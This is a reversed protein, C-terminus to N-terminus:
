RGRRPSTPRGEGGCSEAVAAVLTTAADGGRKMRRDARGLASLARRLDAESWRRSAELLADLKFQMNPPLLKTGIEDRSARAERMALAGRVQRLSRHLTTLIRLGEEGDGLLREVHELSAAVDRGSFSDSLLYLPQGLGRGLVAGLDDATIDKRGAAFAELKDVEGMLRRLDQGVEGLLENLADPAFRLGRSRLEAEVHARLARGKKPSVDLVTALPLLKKWPNRRRDPKAAMLVLTVDPAPDGAYVEVPDEEDKPASAYKLLEARRVVIARRSAFLSGTRAFGLVDEWKKEDGYLVQLAEQRDAGIAAALVRELAEEALYTDEGVIAQIPGPRSSSAM